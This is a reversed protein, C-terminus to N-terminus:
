IDGLEAAVILQATLESAHKAKFALQLVRHSWAPLKYENVPLIINKQEPIVGPRSNGNGYGNYENSKQSSLGESRPKNSANRSSSKLKLFTM